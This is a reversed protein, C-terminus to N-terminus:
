KAVLVRKDDVVKVSSGAFEITLGSEALEFVAVNERVPRKTKTKATAERKEQNRAMQIQEASMPFLLVQGSESLEVKNFRPGSKKARSIKRAKEEAQRADEAAMEEPTMKFYVVQDSEGMRYAKYRQDAAALSITLFISVIAVGLITLIKNTM